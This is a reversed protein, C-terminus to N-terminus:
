LQPSLVNFALPHLPASMGFPRPRISCAADLDPFPAFRNMAALGNRTIRPDTGLSAAFHHMGRYCAISDASSAASAPSYSRLSSERRASDALARTPIAAREVLAPRVWRSM